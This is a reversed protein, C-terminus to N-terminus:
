RANVGGNLYSETLAKTKDPAFHPIYYKYVLEYISPEDTLAGVVTMEETPQYKGEKALKTFLQAMSAGLEQVNQGTREALIVAADFLAIMYCGPCLPDDSTAPKADHGVGLTGLLRMESELVDAISRGVDVRHHDPIHILNPDGGYTRGATGAHTLKSM